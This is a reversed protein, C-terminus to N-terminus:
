RTRERRHLRRMIMATDDPFGGVLEDYLSSVAAVLSKFALIPGECEQRVWCLRTEGGAPAAASALRSLALM